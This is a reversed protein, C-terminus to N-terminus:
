CRGMMEPTIKYAVGDKVDTYKYGCIPIPCSKSLEKMIVKYSPISLKCIKTDYYITYDSTTGPIASWVVIVNKNNNLEKILWQYPEEAIGNHINEITTGDLPQFLITNCNKSDYYIARKTNKNVKSYVNKLDRLWLEKM